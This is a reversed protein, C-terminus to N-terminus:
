HLLSVGQWHWHGIGSENNKSPMQFSIVYSCSFYALSVIKEPDLIEPGRRVGERSLRGQRCRALRRALFCSTRSVRLLLADLSSDAHTIFALSSLASRVVGRFRYSSNITGQALVSAPVRFTLFQKESCLMKIMRKRALNASGM